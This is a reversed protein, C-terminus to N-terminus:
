EERSDFASVLYALYSSTALVGLWGLSFVRPVAPLHGTMVLAATVVILTATGYLVRAPGTM